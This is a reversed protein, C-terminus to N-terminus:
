AGKEREERFTKRVERKENVHRYAGRKRQVCVIGVLCRKCMCLTSGRGFRM